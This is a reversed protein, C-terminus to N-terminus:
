MKILAFEQRDIKNDGNKDASKMMQKILEKPPAAGGSQRTLVNTLEQETIYGNGDLDFAKFCADMQQKSMEAPEATVSYAKGLGLEEYANLFETYNIKGDKNKDAKRFFGQVDFDNPDQGMNKIGQIFEAETISGDKDLDLAAFQAKIEVQDSEGYTVTSAM